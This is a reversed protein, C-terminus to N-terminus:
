VAVAGQGEVKGQTGLSVAVKRGEEFQAKFHEKVKDPDFTLFTGGSAFHQIFVNGLAWSYAGCFLAMAPAGALAGVIPVAKLLSGFAGFAMTSPLIFGVLSTMAAKGRNEQFPVNYTQSIEALMKLQVGSVAVLDVVPVPILGAAMSFLMYTKVIKTAQQQKDDMILDEPSGPAM